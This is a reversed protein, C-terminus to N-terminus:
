YFEDAEKRLYEHPIEIKKQEDLFPPLKEYSFNLKYPGNELPFDSKNTITKLAPNNVRASHPTFYNGTNRSTTVLISKEYWTDHFACAPSGCEFSLKYPRKSPQPSNKDFKMTKNFRENLKELSERGRCTIVKGLPAVYYIENATTALASKIDPHLGTRAIPAIQDEHLDLFVYNGTSVAIVYTSEQQGIDMISDITAQSATAAYASLIDGPLVSCKFAVKAHRDDKENYDRYKLLTIVGNLNNTYIEIGEKDGTWHHKEESAQSGLMDLIPTITSGADFIIAIKDYRNSGRIYDIRAKLFELFQEALYQKEYRWHSSRDEEYLESYKWHVSMTKKINGIIKKEFNEQCSRGKNIHIVDDNKKKLDRDKIELDYISKLINMLLLLAGSLGAAITGILQLPKGRGIIQFSFGIYIGLGLIVFFLLILGLPHSFM